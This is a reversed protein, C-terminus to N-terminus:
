TIYDVKIPIDDHDDDGVSKWAAQLYEPVSWKSEKGVIVVWRKGSREEEQGDADNGYFKDFVAGSRRGCAFYLVDVASGFTHTCIHLRLSRIAPMHRAARAMAMLMPNLREGDIIKRFYREPKLGDLYSQFRENFLQPVKVNNSYTAVMGNEVMIGLLHALELVSSLAPLEIDEDYDYPDEPDRVYLWKGEPTTINLSVELKQLHPWFPTPTSPNEPWFFCPSLVM